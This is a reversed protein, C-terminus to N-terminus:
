ILHHLLFLSLLFVPLLDAWAAIVVMSEDMDSWILVVSHLLSCTTTMYATISHALPIYWGSICFELRARAKNCAYNAKSTSMSAQYTLPIDVSLGKPQTDSGRSQSLRKASVVVVRRVYKPLCVTEWIGAGHSRIGLLVHLCHTNDPSRALVSTNWQKYHLTKWKSTEQTGGQSM